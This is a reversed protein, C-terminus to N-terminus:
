AEGGTKNTFQENIRQKWRTSLEDVDSGYLDKLRALTRLVSQIEGGTLFGRESAATEYSELANLYEEAKPDEKWNVM